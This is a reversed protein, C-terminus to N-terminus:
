LIRAANLRKLRRLIMEVITSILCNTSLLANGVCCARIIRPDRLKTHATAHKKAITTHEIIGSLKGNWIGSRMASNLRGRELVM